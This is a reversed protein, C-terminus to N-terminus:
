EASHRRRRVTFAILGAAVLLAAGGIPVVANVGTNALNSGGGAAAVATSSPTPTSSTSPTPTSTPTLDVIQNVTGDQNLLVERQQPDNFDLLNNLSGAREDFSADGIRGTSWNDEIFKTISTQEIPTHDINNQKTFPSIVLMPLRPGVGCRDQYGGAAAPGSQCMATDATATAPSPAGNVNNDTSGNLITPAAHDYWGDSDDYAIVIATSSWEPSQQIANIESVLFHQEDIPDSYAAHGDEYEPAKLFSVAPLNNQSLATDFSSLDYQHNAQDTKGIMADSSPPLHHPNSTSAYYQFPSHHASYDASATGAINTHTTGQCKALTSDTAPTSPTFGGQFWGWTVDKENLLDGINKGQMQVTSQTSTHDTDACDDYFPDPDDVVTGVGASDPSSIAYTSPQPAGTTPNVAIGGHTQGSVLNLAGPTSPGFVSDWSNDSMTYNQAYNWLGTVTNGDFYDMTLGPASYTNTATCLQNTYKVFQDMAGGNMAQQEPVDNHNMDCTVAQQPTLRAPAYQNPNSTLLAPNSVYNDSAPTGAAATFQPDAPNDNAANPYTGFYHDYSINEDFLVVIHKVPTTTLASNDQSGTVAFASTASVSLATAGALALFAAAAYGARRKTRWGSHGPNQETM